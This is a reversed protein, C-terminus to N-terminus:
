KKGREKKRIVLKLGSWENSVACVKVDVFGLPICTDRILDETIETEKKASKKYWSIWVMGDDHIQHRLDKLKEELVDLKNTFLHVFDWPPASRVNLTSAEVGLWLNYEKPSSFAIANMGQRLGLKEALSKGSYGPPLPKSM